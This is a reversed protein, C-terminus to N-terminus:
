PSPRGDFVREPSDQGYYADPGHKRLFHKELLVPDMSGLKPALELTYFALEAVEDLVQANEVAEAVTRGWAFPGHRSVLAGPVGLPDRGQLAEVIAHGTRAEYSDGIEDPRLGRTCPIDGRFYDAHTTGLVPIPREAQAWVTAWRSHTHVIAGVAPFAAYLALHTPADASPQLEGEVREGALTLVVLSDVRLEEYPVGSPKIVVTDQLRDVASVNGWTHSVLGSGALRQNALLVATKLSAPAGM